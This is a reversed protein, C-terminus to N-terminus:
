QKRECRHMMKRVDEMIGSVEEAAAGTMGQTLEDDSLAVDASYPSLVSLCNAQEGKRDYAAALELRLIAISSYPLTEACKETMGKLIGPNMGGSDAQELATQVNDQTCIPDVTLYLGKFSGNHGCYTICVEPTPSDLEIGRETRRMTLQCQDTGSAPDVHTAQLNRTTTGTMRCEYGASDSHLEFRLM